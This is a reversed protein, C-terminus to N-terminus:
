PRTLKKGDLIARQAYLLHRIFGCYVEHEEQFVDHCSNHNCDNCQQLAKKTGHVSSEETREKEGGEWRGGCVSKMRTIRQWCMEGEKAREKM